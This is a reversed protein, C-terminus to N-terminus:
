CSRTVPSWPCRVREGACLYGDIRQTALFALAADLAHLNAHVDSIVGYRM